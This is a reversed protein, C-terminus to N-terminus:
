EENGASTNRIRALVALGAIGLGFIVVIEAARNVLDATIGLTMQYTTLLPAVVGIMWERLGLGNSLFPVMTAMASLCAFAIASHHDIPSGILEFAAWYRVANVLLEVYRVLGAGLWVRCKPSAIAGVAVIPLPATAGFWLPVASNMSLVIAM